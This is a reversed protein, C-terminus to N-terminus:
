IGGQPTTKCMPTPSHESVLTYFSWGGPLSIVRNRVHLLLDIRRVSVTVVQVSQPWLAHSCTVHMLPISHVAASYCDDQVATNCSTDFTECCSKIKSRLETKRSALLNGWVQNVSYVANTARCVSLQDKSWPVSTGTVHYQLDKRFHPGIATFCILHWDVTRSGSRLCVILLCSYLLDKM